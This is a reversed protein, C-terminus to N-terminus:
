QYPLHSIMIEPFNNEYSYYLAAAWKRANDVKPGLTIHNVIKKISELEIYLRPPMADFNYEKKFELGKVVLRVENENKYADSKFLFAISNLYKELSTKEKNILALKSKLENMLSSINDSDDISPIYFQNTETDIYVVWYFNIDSEPSCYDEEGKPLTNKIENIFEQTRLTIASGKAEIGNEKGYLRWMNLDNSKDKNVFSGIFPKPSFYELRSGDKYSSYPKYDLFIFFEKGENPDNMFNGESLRFKDDDLILSKLVSFTTYHTVCEDKILLVDKIKTILNIIESLEKDKKENILEINYKAYKSWYDNENDTLEIYKRFDLKSRDLDENQEKLAIGRNLYANAFKHDIEIAKTYNKIAEDYKKLVRLVSAMIVYASSFNPDIEIVKNYDNIAKDYKKNAIWAFGRNYYSLADNPNYELAKNYDNIAKDYDQNYYFANGRRIYFEFAEKGTHEIIEDSLLEIIENFKEKDFLTKTKEFLNSINTEM